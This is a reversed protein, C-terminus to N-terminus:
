ETSELHRAAEKLNRALTLLKKAYGGHYDDFQQCLSGDQENVRPCSFLYYHWQKRARHVLAAVANRLTTDM